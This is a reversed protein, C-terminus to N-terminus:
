NESLVTAMTQRRYRSYYQVTGPLLYQSPLLVLVKPYFSLSLNNNLTCISFKFHFAASLIPECDHRQREMQILEFILVM